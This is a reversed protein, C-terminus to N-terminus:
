TKIKRFYQLIGTNNISKTVCDCTSVILIKQSQTFDMLLNIMALGPWKKFGFDFYLKSIKIVVSLEVGITKLYICQSNSKLNKKEYFTMTFHLVTNESMRLNPLMKEVKRLGTVAPTSVDKPM